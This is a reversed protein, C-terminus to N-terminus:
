VFYGSEAIMSKYAETLKVGRDRGHQIPEGDLSEVAGLASWQRYLDMHVISSQTGSPWLAHLADFNARTMSDQFVRRAVRMEDPGWEQRGCIVAHTNGWAKVQEVIRYPRSAATALISTSIPNTSFTSHLVAWKSLVRDLGPSRTCDSIGSEPLVHLQNAGDTLLRHTEDKIKTKLRDQQLPDLKWAIAADALMAEPTDYDLAMRISLFRDGFVSMRARVIEFAETTGVVM